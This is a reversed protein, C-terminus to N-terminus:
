LAGYLIHRHFQPVDLMSALATRWRHHPYWRTKGFGVMYSGGKPNDGLIYNM